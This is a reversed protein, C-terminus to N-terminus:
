YQGVTGYTLTLSVPLNLILLTLTITLLDLILLTLSLPGQSYHVKPTASWSGCTVCIREM